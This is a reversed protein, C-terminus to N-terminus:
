PMRGLRFDPTWESEEAKFREHQRRQRAIERFRVGMVEAPAGRRRSEREFRTEARAVHLLVLQTPKKM